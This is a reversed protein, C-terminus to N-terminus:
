ANRVAKIFEYADIYSQKKWDPLRSKLVQKATAEIQKLEDGSLSKACATKYSNFTFKDLNLAPPNGLEVAELVEAFYDLVERKDDETIALGFVRFDPNKEYEDPTMEWAKKSANVYLVLYYDLDYMIGYCVVQKRHDEKPGKMSYDGTQAATTQKSKVELGVRIIEGDESTYQMVGDCTGFLSFRKGNHEIVHMKKAFDEFMPRGDERREFKFAPAKDTLREYHKEAFLIDRQIMDGIATGLATWRKKHPSIAQEDRKAGRIREYLERKDSNASSPSFYPQSKFDFYKRQRLEDAYWEHIQADLQNDWVEPLSHYEDLFTRLDDAIQLAL